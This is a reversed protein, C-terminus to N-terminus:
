PNSPIDLACRGVPWLPAKGALHLRAALRGIGGAATAEHWRRLGVEPPDFLADGNLIHESAIAHFEPGASRMRQATRTGEGGMGGALTLLAKGHIKRAVQPGAVGGRTDGGTVAAQAAM